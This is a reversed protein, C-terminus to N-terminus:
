RRAMMLLFPELRTLWSAAQEMSTLVAADYEAGRLRMVNSVERHADVFDRMSAVLKEVKAPKGSTQAIILGAILCLEPSPPAIESAEALKRVREVSMSWLWAGARRPILSRGFFMVPLLANGTTPCFVSSLDTLM